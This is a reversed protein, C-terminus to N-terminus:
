RHRADYAALRASLRRAGVEIMDEVECFGDIIQDTIRDYTRTHMGKPRTRFAHWGLQDDPVGLRRQLRHVRRWARGIADDSQSAYALGLCDRCAIRNRSLYLVACRQNCHCTFWHRQGGFNCPTTETAVAIQVPHWDGGSPMQWRYRFHVFPGRSRVGMRGTAKGDVSWVIESSAGDRLLGWRKLKRIDVAHLHECKRRWGSRGSLLGGM